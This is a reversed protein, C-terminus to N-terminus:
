FDTFSKIIEDIKGSKKMLYIQIDFKKVFDDKFPYSGVNIDTYGLYGANKSIVKSEQISEKNFRELKGEELLKKAWWKFPLRSSVVCDARNSIFVLISGKIDKVENLSIVKAKVMEEFKAGARGDGRFRVFTLGKYDEPFKNRPKELVKKHCYVVDTQEYLQMSYPWIYPKKPEKKTLWDHAHFYPPLIGFVLGRETLDKARAWPNVKFEVKYDPMKSIAEKVIEIYVGTLKGSKRFAFPPLIDYTAIEVKQVALTPLSNILLLFIVAIKM